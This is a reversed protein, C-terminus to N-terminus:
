PAAAGLHGAVLARAWQLDEDRPQPNDQQRVTQTILGDGRRRYDTLLQVQEAPDADLWVHCISQPLAAVPPEAGRSRAAIQAAAAAGLHAAIHATKPYHGFLPSVTDLLDGVLYVREDLPSALRAPGVGAWRTPRGQADRGALGAQEVLTSARMPPLLIAHDFRLEGDNTGLTRAYPDVSRVEAYPRHVIQGPYRDAFLRTFRPLGGGADLVTLKIPLRRTKILWGILMAREYPAPPCRYPPPPVSMVLEGGGPNALFADLRRKLLDLESAVFGAPFLERAATAARADDGFWASSDYSVGAALVLWDYGFRGESTFVTRQARDIAQVEAQVFRYGLRRALTALDIPALREPTRGVLWPNSLPLSRLSPARDILVVDLEPASRRLARAASLGAWGGGVILVRQGAAGTASASAASAAVGPNAAPRGPWALGLGGLAGLLDRRRM